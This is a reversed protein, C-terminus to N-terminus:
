KEAVLFVNKGLVKKSVTHLLKSVPFAYKDYVCVSKPSVVGNGGGVKYVLSAWFGIPDYYLLEVVKLKAIESMRRLRKTRYRRHHGVQKDMASFLSQFAPVYVVLRGGKKLVKRLKEAEQFDDEIHEFVNLAYIVDYTNAPVDGIESFVKFKAKKLEGQLLKDPELCDPVVGYKALMKAYTGSGAGFDLVKPKKYRGTQALVLGILFKNYNVAETMAELNERGTYVFNDKAL